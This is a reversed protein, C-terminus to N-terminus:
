SLSIAEDIAQPWPVQTPLDPTTFLCLQFVTQHPTKKLLLSFVFTDFSLLLLIRLGRYGCMNKQLCWCAEATPFSSGPKHSVQAQHGHTTKHLVVLQGRKGFSYSRILWKFGFNIKQDCLWFLKGVRRDSISPTPM